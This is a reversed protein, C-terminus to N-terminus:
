LFRELLRRSQRDLAQRSPVRLQLGHAGTILLAGGELRRIDEEAKLVFRTDGRDTRVDWTSPVGFTSVSRLQLLIPAFDRTALAQTILARAEPAVAQLDAIWHRERGDPGVLSIGADPASLAFARVPTVAEHRGDPLLLQLVGRADSRLQLAASGDAAASSAASLTENM